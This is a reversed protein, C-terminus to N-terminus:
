IEQQPRGQWPRDTRTFNTLTTTYIASRAGRVDPAILALAARDARIRVSAAFVQQLTPLLRYAAFALFTLQGLWPGVGADRGGLVLALGVLGVAAVCEMLHRPNQAVVQSHAAALSFSKSAREF